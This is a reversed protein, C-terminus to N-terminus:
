TSQTARERRDEEGYSIAIPDCHLIVLSIIIMGHPIIFLIDPVPTRRSNEVLHFKVGVATKPASTHYRTIIVAHVHFWNYVQLRHLGPYRISNMAAADLHFVASRGTLTPTQM